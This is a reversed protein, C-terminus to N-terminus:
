AKNRTFSHLVIMTHELMGVRVAYDHERIVAVVVPSPRGVEGPDSIMEGLLTMEFFLHEVTENSFATQGSGSRQLGSIEGQQPQAVQTM